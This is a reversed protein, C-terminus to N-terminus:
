VCPIVGKGSLIEAFFGASEPVPLPCIRMSEVDIRAYHKLAYKTGHGLVKRVIETSVDDNIMNSAISSRCARSGHKRGFINIQACQFQNRIMRNVASGSIPAYPAVLSIFINPYATVNPRVNKTYNKLATKVEPLLEAEWPDGTKQQIFHLRNNKFDIDDFRLAAVDCARIGYRTMLLTIGYNRIGSLSSLDFSNEVCRVEEPSYVTPQPMPNHRIQILGSYNQKLFNNDFLFCLFPRIKGWYIKSGLALFAAQVYEATVDSMERCGLKCLHNMFHGCVLYINHITTQRNGKEACYALYATLSDMLCNPLEFKISTDPLLAERGDLGQLLRNLKGTINKARLIHSSCIKLDSICHSVFREGIEPTYEKLRHTEMFRSMAQFIFNMDKVTIKSYAETVLLERLRTVLVEFTNSNIKM